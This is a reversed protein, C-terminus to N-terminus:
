CKMNFQSFDLFITLFMVLIMTKEFASDCSFHEYILFHTSLLGDRLQM